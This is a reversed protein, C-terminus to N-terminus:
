KRGEYGPHYEEKFTVYADRAEQATEFCGLHKFKGEHYCRANYKGRRGDYYIGSTDCEKRNQNNSLDGVCERLNNPRNDNRIGNIHDIDATPWRGNAFAFSLRHAYYPIGQYKIVVYGNDPRTNGAESGAVVNKAPKSKWTFTGTSPDLHLVEM